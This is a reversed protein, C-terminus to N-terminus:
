ATSRGRRSPGPTACRRASASRTSWRKWRAGACAPPWSGPSSSPRLAPSSCSSGASTSSGASSGRWGPVTQVEDLYVSMGGARLGPFRRAHEELMWGLDAVTLGELREDELSVLIQAERPSGAALRDARCQALFSTKGGRRVGIVAFAKGPIGPLRVDRRTLAPVEAALSEDLKLRLLDHSITM